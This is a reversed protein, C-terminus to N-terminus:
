HDDSGGHGSDDSGGHGSDDSGGHGSDDGNSSVDDGTGHHDETGPADDDGVLDGHHDETGPADDDGDLGRGRDDDGLVSPTPFVTRLGACDDDLRGRRAPNDDFRDERCGRPAVTDIGAQGPRFTPQAAAPNVVLPATRRPLPGDDTLGQATLFVGGSLVVVGVLVPLKRLM